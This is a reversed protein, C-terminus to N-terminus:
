GFLDPVNLVSALAQFPDTSTSLGSGTNNAQTNQTQIQNNSTMNGTPSFAYRAAADYANIYNGMAQQGSQGALQLQLEQMASNITPSGAGYQAALQPAQYKNFNFMAADYVSQPLGFNQSIDGTALGGAMQGAQGQLAQQIPTFYPLQTGSQTQSELGTGTQSANTNTTTTLLGSDGLAM